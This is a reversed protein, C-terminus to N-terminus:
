ADPLTETGSSSRSLREGNWPDCEARTHVGERPAQPETRLGRVLAVMIVILLLAVPMGAVIAATQLAGLGGVVLLVGALSAISTTRNIPATFAPGPNDPAGM